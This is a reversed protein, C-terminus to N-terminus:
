ELRTFRGGKTARDSKIATSITSMRLQCSLSITTHNLEAPRLRREQIRGTSRKASGIIRTTPIREM